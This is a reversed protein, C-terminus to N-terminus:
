ACTRLYAKPKGKPLVRLLIYAMDGETGSKLFDTTGRDGGQPTVISKFIPYFEKLYALVEAEDKQERVLDVIAVEYMGDFPVFKSAEEIKGANLLSVLNRGWTDVKEQDYWEPAAPQDQAHLPAIGISLLGIVAAFTLKAHSAFPHPPRIASTM